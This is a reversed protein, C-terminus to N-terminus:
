EMKIVSRISEGRTMFNFAENIQDLPLTHTVFEDLLLKQNMYDDVLRPVGEVSKWGGFYTGKLTRGLLLDYPALTLEELETWGVIVCTGWASRCSELAARMVAVDGVCELSFDVGGNTMEALVKQIPKNHDKPNVFETAGFVKAKEFKNPNIDVAIIRAAGAARCGMVAALGVAGLGFVACTSGPEVKAANLAAGYGTSVGCGLLCVKDLPADDRIKTVSTDLVVTYESFSGVGIFQYVQRGNCSIRSTGDALVGQQTKTWNKTCLNTKPSLCCECEGCQPLFLPIVKDGPSFKSVGPGVSEVVGAGEHGLILPFPRMQMGKGAEFLYAWDTHCMGSAATKIRVEHAKPPAVEVDEISLPKEAEWAVAARCKIVQGVTAM